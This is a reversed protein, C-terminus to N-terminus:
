VSPTTQVTPPTNNGDKPLVYNIGTIPEGKSTIDVKETIRQKLKNYERIAAVKPSLDANQKVVFALEKDVFADNLELDLLERIRDLITVNQLLKWASAKATNYANKETLDIDFAEIYSEVGNGFFEKDSAYLQCFAEWNVNELPTNIERLEPQQKAM